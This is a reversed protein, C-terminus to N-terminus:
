VLLQNVDNSISRSLLTSIRDSTQSLKIEYLKDSIDANNHLIAVKGYKRGNLTQILHIVLFYRNWIKHMCM